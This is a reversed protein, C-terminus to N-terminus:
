GGEMLWIISGDPKLFLYISGVDGIMLSKKQQTSYRIAEKRNCWPFPTNCEFWLSAFEGIYAADNWTQKDVQYNKPGNQIFNPVGGIKTGHMSWQWYSSSAEILSIIEPTQVYDQTRHIVGFFSIEVSRVGNKKMSQRDWIPQDTVRIWKFCLDDPEFCDLYKGSWGDHKVFILLVDGPVPVSAVDKSDVFSIQAVFVYPKGATDQPWTTAKPLYPVGGVKTLYPKESEGEGWIFVDSFLSRHNNFGLRKRDTEVSYIDCPSAVHSRKDKINKYVSECIEFNLVPHQKGPKKLFISDM